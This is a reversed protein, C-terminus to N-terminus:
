SRVLCHFRSLLAALHFSTQRSKNNGRRQESENEGCGGRRLIKLLTVADACSALHSDAVDRTVHNDGAVVSIRDDDLRGLGTAVLFHDLDFIAAAGGIDVYSDAIGLIAVAVRTNTEFHLRWTRHAVVVVADARNAALDLHGSNRSTQARRGYAAVNM